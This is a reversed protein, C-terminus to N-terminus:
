WVSNKKLWLCSLHEMAQYWQVGVSSVYWLKTRSYGVCIYCLKTGNYGMCYLHVVAHYGQAVCLLSM